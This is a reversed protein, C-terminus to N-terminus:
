DCPYYRCFECWTGSNEHNEEDNLFDTMEQRLTSNKYFDNNKPIQHLSYDGHKKLQEFSPFPHVQDNGRFFAEGFLFRMDMHSVAFERINGRHNTSFIGNKIYNEARVLIDFKEKKQFFPFLVSYKEDVQRIMSTICSNVEDQNKGAIVQWILLIILNEYFKGCEETSLVNESKHLIFQYFYRKPCLFMSMAYYRDYQVQLIKKKNSIKENCFNPEPKRQGESFEKNKILNKIYNLLVLSEVYIQLMDGKIVCYDAFKIRNVENASLFTDFQNAQHCSECVEIDGFDFDVTNDLFTHDKRQFLIEQFRKEGEFTSSKRNLIELCSEICREEQSMALEMDGFCEVNILIEQLYHFNDPNEFLTVALNQYFQIEKAFYVLEKQLVQIEEYVRLKRVEVYKDDDEIESYNKIYSELKEILCTFTINELFISSIKRYFPFLNEQTESLFPSSHFCKELLDASFCLDKKRTDWMKLLNHLFVPISFSEHTNLESSTSSNEVKMMFDNATLFDPYEKSYLVQDLTLLKEEESEGDFDIVKLSDGDFLPTYVGKVLAFFEGKRYNLLFIIHFGLDHLIQISRLLHPTFYYFGHLVITQADSVKEIEPFLDAFIENIEELDPLKITNHDSKETYKRYIQAILTSGEFFEVENKLDIESIALLQQFLLLKNKTLKRWEECDIPYNKEIDLFIENFIQYKELKDNKKKGLFQEHYILQDVTTMVSLTPALLLMENVLTENVCFHPVQRIKDWIKESILQNKHSYCLLEYSM